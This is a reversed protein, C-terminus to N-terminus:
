GLVPLLEVYSLIRGAWDTPGHLLRSVEASVMSSDHANPCAMMM